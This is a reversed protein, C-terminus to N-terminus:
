RFRFRRVHSLFSKADDEPWRAKVAKEFEDFRGLADYVAATETAIHSPGVSVADKLAEELLRDAKENNDLAHYLRVATLLSTKSLRALATDSLPVHSSLQPRDVLLHAWRELVKDGVGKSEGYDKLLRIVEEWRKAKRLEDISLALTEDSIDGNALLKLLVASAEDFRNKGSYVEAIKHGVKRDSVGQASWVADIVRVPLPSSDWDRITGISAQISSWLIPDSADHTAEWLENTTGLVSGGTINRVRYVRLLERYIDPHGFYNALDEMEKQAADPDEFIAAKAAEILK